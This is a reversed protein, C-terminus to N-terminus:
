DDILLPLGRERAILALHCLRSGARLHFGSFHVYVLFATLEITPYDAVVYFPSDAVEKLEPIIHELDLAHLEALEENEAYVSLPRKILDGITRVQTPTIHLARGKIPLQQLSSRPWGKTKNDPLTADYVWLRHLPDEIWELVAGPCAKDLEKTVRALTSFDPEDGPVSVYNTSLSLKRVGEEGRLLREISGMTWEILLQDCEVTAYGAFTASPHETVLYYEQELNAIKTPLESLLFVGFDEKRRPRVIDKDPCLVSETRLYSALQMGCLLSRHFVFSRPYLAGALACLKHVHYRKHRHRTFIEKYAPPIDAERAEHFSVPAVQQTHAKVLSRVQFFFLRDECLGFEVDVEMGMHTRLRGLASLLEVLSETSLHSDGFAIDLNSEEVLKVFATTAAGKGATVDQEDQTTSITAYNSDSTGPDCSLAVGHIDRNIYEQVIIELHVESIAAASITRYENLLREVAVCLAQSTNEIPLISSFEGAKSGAPTDELSYSSRVALAEIGSLVASHLRGLADGIGVEVLQNVSATDIIATIPIRCGLAALTAVGRGKMTRLISPENPTIKWRHDPALSFVTLSM